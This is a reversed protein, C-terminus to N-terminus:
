VRGGESPRFMRRSINQTLLVLAFSPNLQRGTKIKVDLGFCWWRNKQMLSQFINKRKWHNKVVYSHLGYDKAITAASKVRKRRASAFAYLVCHGTRVSAIVVPVPINRYEIKQMQSFHKRCMEQLCHTRFDFCIRM